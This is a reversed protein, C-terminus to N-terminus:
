NKLGYVRITGTINSSAPTLTFGDYSTTVSIAGAYKEWYALGAAANLSVQDLEWSSRESTQPNMIRLTSIGQGGSQADLVAASTTLGGGSAAVLATSGSTPGYVSWWM